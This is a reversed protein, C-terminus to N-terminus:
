QKSGFWPMKFYHQAVLWTLVFQIGFSICTALAAGKPGMKDILIFNLVINIIAILITIAGIIKTKELYFLYNVKMKYLGNFFFGIAIWIVLESGSSFDNGFLKYILPTFLYLLGTVVALGLYYLYSIKVIKVKISDTINSCMKYFWPVWAQNFSNQVLAIILGVQFAVSYMGNADLGLKETIVFKDSINVIAGGLAHPILPAGYNLVHNLYKRDVKLGIAGRNVLFGVTILAILVTASLIGLIRGHYGFSLIMVLFLTVGVDVLTRILRLFFFSWVKNEIRWATFIIESISFVLCYWSVVRIYISDLGTLEILWDELIFFVLATIATLIIQTNIGTQAYDNINVDEKYYQRTYSAVFSIGVLPTLLTILANFNSLRGYDEPSLYATLFPLLLFPIGTSVLNSATYVIFGKRLESM